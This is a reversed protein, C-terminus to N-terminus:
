LPQYIIIWLQKEITTSRTDTWATSVAAVGCSTWCHRTWSSLSQQQLIWCLSYKPARCVLSQSSQKDGTCTRSKLNLVHWDIQGAISLLLFNLWYNVPFRHPPTGWLELIMIDAMCDSVGFPDDAISGMGTRWTFNFVFKIMFLCM